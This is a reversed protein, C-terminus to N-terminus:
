GRSLLGHLDELEKKVRILAERFRKEPLELKMQQDKLGKTKQLKKKAGAITFKEEYLLKKIELILELDKKRYLRQKSHTRSPSVIKFESEWYRLVYPEIGTIESVEGIKYYLKEPISSPERKDM